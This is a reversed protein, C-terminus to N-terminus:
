IRTRKASLGDAEEERARKQGMSKIEQPHEISVYQPMWPQVYDTGYVDASPDFNPNAIFPDFTYHSDNLCDTYDVNGAAPPNSDVGLGALNPETENLWERVQALQDANNAAQYMTLVDPSDPSPRSTPAAPTASVVNGQDLNQLYQQIAEQFGVPIKGNAIMKMVELQAQEQISVSTPAVTNDLKKEDQQSPGELLGRVKSPLESISTRKRFTESLVQIIRDLKEQQERYKNRTDIAYKWLNDTSEALRCLEERILYQRAAVTQIEARAIAIDAPDAMLGTQPDSSHLRQQKAASRAKEAEGKKRM